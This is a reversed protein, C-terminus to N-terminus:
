YLGKENSKEDDKIFLCQGTAIQTRPHIYIYIYILKISMFFYPLYFEFIKLSRLIISYGVVICKLLM